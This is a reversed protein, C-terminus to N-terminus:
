PKRWSIGDDSEAYGVGMGSKYWIKFKGEDRLVSGYVTAFPPDWKESPWIVPNREFKRATQVTRHVGTSSAILYDDLFLQKTATIEIPAAQAGEAILLLVLLRLLKPVPTMGFM